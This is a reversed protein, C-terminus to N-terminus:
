HESGLIFAFRGGEDVLEFYWEGEPMDTFEIKKKWVPPAGTIEFLALKAGKENVNVTFGCVLANAKRMAAPCETAVIDLLWYCGAEACEEVGDSYQFYRVLPHRIFYNCGNRSENYARLFEDKKM